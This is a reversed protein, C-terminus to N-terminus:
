THLRIYIRNLIYLFSRIELPNLCLRVVRGVMMWDALSGVLWGVFLGRDYVDKFTLPINEKKKKSKSICIIAYQAYYFSM